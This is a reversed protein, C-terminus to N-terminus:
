FSYDNELWGEAFKCVASRASEVRRALPPKRWPDLCVVMSDKGVGALCVGQQAICAQTPDIQRSGIAQDDTMAMEIMGPAYGVGVSASGVSPDISVRRRELALVM